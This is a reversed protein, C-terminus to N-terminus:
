LAALDFGERFPNVITVGEITQGDQLDETLLYSVGAAKAAALIQCDWFSYGFRNYLRLAHRSTNADLPQIHGVALLTETIAPGSDPRGRRISNVFVEAIVQASLVMANAEVLTTICRRAQETKPNQYVSYVIVNSDVFSNAIM